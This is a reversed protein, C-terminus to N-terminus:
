HHLKSQHKRISPQICDVSLVRNWRNKPQKTTCKFWKVFFMPKVLNRTQNRTVFSCLTSREVSCMTGIEISTSSNSCLWSWTREAAVKSYKRRQKFMRYTKVHFWMRVTRQNVLNWAWCYLQSIFRMKDKWWWKLITRHISSIYRNTTM